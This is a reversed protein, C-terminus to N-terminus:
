KQAHFIGETTGGEDGSDSDVPRWGQAPWRVIEIKQAEFDGVLNGYGKLTEPTAHVLRPTVVRDAQRDPRTLVASDM